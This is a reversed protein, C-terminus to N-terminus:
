WNFDRVLIALLINKLDQLCSINPRLIFDGVIIWNDHAICMVDMDVGDFLLQWDEAMQKYDWLYSGIDFDNAIDDYWEDTFTDYAGKEAILANLYTYLKRKM